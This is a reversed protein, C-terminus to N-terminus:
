KWYTEMLEDAEEGSKHYEEMIYQRTDDQPISRRRDSRIVGIIEGEERIEKIALCVNVVEEGESYKVKSGTAANIVDAWRKQLM